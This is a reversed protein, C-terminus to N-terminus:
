STDKQPWQSSFPMTASASKRVRPGRSLLHTSPGGVLRAKEHELDIFINKFSRIQASGESQEQLGVDFALKDCSSSSSLCALYQFSGIINVMNCMHNACVDHDVYWTVTAIGSCSQMEM